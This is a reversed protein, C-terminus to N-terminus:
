YSINFLKIGSISTAFIPVNPDIKTVRSFQKMPVPFHEVEGKELLRLLWEMNNAEADVSIDITHAGTGPFQSSSLNIIANKFVVTLPQLM